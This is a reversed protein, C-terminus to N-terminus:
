LKYSEKLWVQADTGEWIYQKFLDRLFYVMELNSYKFSLEPLIGMTHGDGAIVAIIYGVQFFVISCLSFLGGMAALWDYYSYEVYEQWYEVILDTRARLDVIGSLNSNPTTPTIEVWSMTTEIKSMDTRGISRTVKESYDITFSMYANESFARDSDLSVVENFNLNDLSRAVYLYFGNVPMTKNQTLADADITIYFLVWRKGPDPDNVKIRFCGLFTRETATDEMYLAVAEAEDYTTQVERLDEILYIDDAWIIGTKNTFYNQSALLKELETEIVTPALRSSENEYGPVEVEFFIYFYPMPYQRSIDEKSYDITYDKREAKWESNELRYANIFLYVALILFFTACLLLWVCQLLAVKLSMVFELCTRMGALGHASRMAFSKEYTRCLVSGDNRKSLSKSSKTLVKGKELNCVRKNLSHLEEELNSFKKSIGEMFVSRDHDEPEGSLFSFGQPECLTLEDSSSQASNSSDCETVNIKEKRMLTLSSKFDSSVSNAPWPIPRRRMSFKTRQLIDDRLM